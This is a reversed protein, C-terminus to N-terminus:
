DPRKIIKQCKEFMPATPSQSKIARFNNVGRYSSKIFIKLLLPCFFRSIKVM